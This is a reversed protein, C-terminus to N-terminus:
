ASTGGTQPQGAESTGGTQPQAAASRPAMERAIEAALGLGGGASAGEALAGSIMTSFVGGGPTAAGGGGATAGEEESGAEGLGATAALSSATQQALMREFDLGLAYDRQLEASGNRVWAPAGRMTAASTTPDIAAPDTSM